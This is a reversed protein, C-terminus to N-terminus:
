KKIIGDFTLDFHKYYTHNRRVYDSSYNKSM